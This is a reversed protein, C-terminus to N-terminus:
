EPKQAELERNGKVKPTVGAISGHACDVCVHFHIDRVVSPIDHRDSPGAVRKKQIYTEWGESNDSFMNGCTDCMLVNSM